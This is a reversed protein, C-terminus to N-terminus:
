SRKAEGKRLGADKYDTVTGERANKMAETAADLEQQAGAAESQFQATGAEKAANEIGDLSDQARAARLAADKFDTTAAEKLNSKFGTEAALSDELRQQTLNVDGGAADAEPRM